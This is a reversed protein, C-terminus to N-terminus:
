KAKARVSQLLNRFYAESATNAKRAFQRGLRTREAEGTHQHWAALQEDWTFDGKNAAQKMVIFNELEPDQDSELDIKIIKVQIEAIRAGLGYQVAIQKALEYQQRAKARRGLVSVLYNGFSEHAHVELEPSREGLNKIAELSEEFDSLASDDGKSARSAFGVATLLKHWGWLQTGKADEAEDRCNRLLQLAVGANGRDIERRALNLTDELGSTKSNCITTTSIADRDAM